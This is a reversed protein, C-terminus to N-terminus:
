NKDHPKEKEVHLYQPYAQAIHSLGNIMSSILLGTYGGPNTVDVQMNGPEAIAEVTSYRQLAMLTTQTLASVAACVIDQGHVAFDAHGEVTYGHTYNGKFPRVTIMTGRM